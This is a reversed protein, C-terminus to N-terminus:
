GHRVGEMCVEERRECYKRRKVGYQHLKYLPDTDEIMGNKFSHQQTVLVNNTHLHQSLRSRVANMNCM